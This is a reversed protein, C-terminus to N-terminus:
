EGNFDFLDNLVELYHHMKNEDDIEKLRIIPDRIIRKLSSSVMKDVLNRAKCDLDLKRHLYELTDKEVLERLM